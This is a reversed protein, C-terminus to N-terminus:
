AGLAQYLALTRRAVAPWSFHSVVRQRGAQGMSRAWEPRDVLRNLASALDAVFRDADSPDAGPAPQDIPVLLGTEGDVIVEPIGGTATAVVAAGCAMAELNVIGLPEYISPCVFVTAQSLLQILDAKPLIRRLWVVGDRQRRLEAVASETQQALEETDPSGACLVLQAQPRLRAAAALLYRLGKQHTIRGVFVVIPRGLDVGMRGLADTPPEPRYEETDIGNHIVQVREPDIQPYCSLVDARMAASVAVIADAGTLAVQECWSSVAYGRGLQEAKWPRLPELSHTTVVHPVGLLLKSLHGAMNAYWTHSHVVDAGTAEAAMRLDVSLSQLTMNAGALEPDPQQAQAGPRRAGFCHVRVDVSARLARVLYDVHVGAGGYIDPPYERTFIAVQM